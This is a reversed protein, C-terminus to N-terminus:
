FYLPEYNLDVNFSVVGLKLITSYFSQHKAPTPKM